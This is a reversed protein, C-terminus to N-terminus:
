KNNKELLLANCTNKFAMVFSPNLCKIYKVDGSEKIKGTIKFSGEFILNVCFSAVLSDLFPM